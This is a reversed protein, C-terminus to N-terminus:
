CHTAAVCQKLSELRSLWSPFAHKLAQKPFKPESIYCAITLAFRKAVLFFIKRQYIDTMQRGRFRLTESWLTQRNMATCLFLSGALALERKEFM